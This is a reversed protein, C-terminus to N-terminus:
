NDLLSLQPIQYRGPTRLRVTLQTIQPNLAYAYVQLLDLSLCNMAYPQLELWPQPYPIALAGTFAVELRIPGAGVPWAQLELQLQHAQEPDWAGERIIMLAEGESDFTLVGAVSRSVPDANMSQKPALRPLSPPQTCARRQFNIPASSLYLRQVYPDTALATLFVPDTASRLSAVTQVDTAVIYGDQMASNRLFTVKEHARVVFPRYHSLNNVDLSPYVQNIYPGDLTPLRLGDQKGAPLLPAIFDTRLADLAQTRAKADKINARYGSGFGPPQIHSTLVDFAAQLGLFITLLLGTLELFFPRYHVRTHEWLTQWILGILMCYWMYPTGIYKAPWAHGFDAYRRALVAIFSTGLIILLLAVGHWKTARDMKRWVFWGGGIAILLVGILLPVLVPTPIHWYGIPFLKILLIGGSIIFFLQQFITSVSQTTSEPMAQDALVLFRGPAVIAFIYLNFLSVLLLVGFVAVVVWSRNFFFHGLPVTPNRARHHCAIFTLIAPPVWLGSIDILSAVTMFVVMLPPLLPNFSKEWRLYTQICVLSLLAMEPHIMQTYYGSITEGWASLGTFLVLVILTGLAHVGMERMILVVFLLTFIFTALLTINYPLPHVGFLMTLIRLQLRFLSYPHDDHPVTLIETLNHTTTYSLITFDDYRFFGYFLTPWYQLLIIACCIFFWVLLHRKSLPELRNGILCHQPPTIPVLFKEILSVIHRRVLFLFVSTLVLAFGLLPLAPILATKSWNELSARTADRIDLLRLPSLLLEYPVFALITTAIGTLFIISSLLPFDTNKRTDQM